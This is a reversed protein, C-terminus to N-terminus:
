SEGIVGDVVFISGTILGSEEALLFAIMNAQDMPDAIKGTPCRSEFYPAYTKWLESDPTIYDGEWVQKAQGSILKTQQWVLSTNTFGPAIANVRISPTGRAYQVGVNRTLGLIGFKSTAYMPAGPSSRFGNVSALNVVSANKNHKTWMEIELELCNVTGMLNNRVCDHEGGFYQATDKLTGAAGVIGANNVAYDLVFKDDELKKFFKSISDWDSVDAKYWTIKGKNEKVIPDDEIKKVAQKGTFWNSNSDRSCIVVDAGFRAFTLATAFGIGSSGGTVLVKKGIFQKEDYTPRPPVSIVDDAFSNINSMFDMAFNASAVMAVAAVFLVTFLAKNM